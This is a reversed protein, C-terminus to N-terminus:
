ISTQALDIVFDMLFSFCMSFVGEHNHVVTEFDSLFAHYILSLPSCAHYNVM